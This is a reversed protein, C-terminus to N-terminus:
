QEKRFTAVGQEDFYMLVPDYGEPTYLFVTGGPRNWRYGGQVELAEGYHAFHSDLFANEDIQKPTVTIKYVTRSKRSYEAKLYTNHGFVTGQYIYYRDGGVRKQVPFRQRVQATFDTINGEIPYGMFDLHQAWAATTLMLMSLLLLKKM